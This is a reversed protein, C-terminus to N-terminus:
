ERVQPMVTGQVLRMLNQNDTGLELETQMAEIREAVDELAVEIPSLEASTSSMVQQRTFIGPFPEKVTLTTTRKWQLDM